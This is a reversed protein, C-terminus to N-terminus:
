SDLVLHRWLVPSALHFILMIEVSGTVGGMRVLIRVHHQATENEQGSRWIEFVVESGLAPWRITDSQALTKLLRVMTGDHGIIFRVKEDGQKEDLVARLNLTLEKALVATSYKVYEDARPSRNWIYNYEWDGEAYVQRAQQANISRGSTTNRPLPHGHCSRSALFDFAHDIWSNWASEEGTGLVANIDDFLHQKSKLQDKWEDEEEIQARLESAYACSYSPVIGDIPDPHTEVEFPSSQSYGMGRLLGSSVHATRPSPSARFKVTDKSVEELLAAPGGPGYM